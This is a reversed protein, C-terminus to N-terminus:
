KGLNCPYSVLLKIAVKQKSRSFRDGFNQVCIFYIYVKKM